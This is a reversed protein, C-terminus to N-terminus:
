RRGKSRTIRTSESRKLDRLRIQDLHKLNVGVVAMARRSRQIAALADSLLYTCVDPCRAGKTAGRNAVRTRVEDVLLAANELARVADAGASLADLHHRLVRLELPFRSM